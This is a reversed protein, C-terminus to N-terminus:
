SMEYLEKYISMDPITINQKQTDKPREKPATTKRMMRHKYTPEQEKADEAQIFPELDEAAENNDRLAEMACKLTIKETYDETSDDMKKKCLKCMQCEKYYTPLNSLDYSCYRCKVIKQKKIHMRYDYKQSYCNPCFLNINDPSYDTAGTKLKIILSIPKRKWIGENNCGACKYAIGLKKHKVILALLIKDDYKVKPNLCFIDYINKIKNVKEDLKEDGLVNYYNDETSTDKKQPTKKKKKDIMFIVDEDKKIKEVEDTITDCINKDVLDYNNIEPEIIDM